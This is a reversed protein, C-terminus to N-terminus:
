CRRFRRKRWLFCFAEPGIRIIRIFLFLFFCFGSAECPHPAWRGTWSRPWPRSRGAPETGAESAARSGPEYRQWARGPQYWSKGSVPLLDSRRVRIHACSATDSIRTKLSSETLICQKERRGFVPPIKKDRGRKEERIQYAARKTTKQGKAM